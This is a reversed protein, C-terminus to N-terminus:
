ATACTETERAASEVAERLCTALILTRDDDSRAAIQPTALYGALHDCLAEDLGAAAVKLDHADVIQAGHLRVHVQQLVVGDVARERLRDRAAFPLTMQRREVAEEALRTPGRRSLDRDARHACAPCRRVQHAVLLEGIDQAVDPRESPDVLRLRRPGAAERHQHHRGRRRHRRQRRQQTATLFTGAAAGFTPALLVTILQQRRQHVLAGAASRQEGGIGFAVGQPAKGAVQEIKAAAKGLFDAVKPSRNVKKLLEDVKGQHEALAPPLDLHERMGLGVDAASDAVIPPQQADWIDKAAKAAVQLLDIDRNHPAILSLGRPLDEIRNVETAWKVVPQAIPVLPAYLLPETLGHGQEQQGATLIIPTGTFKTWNPVGALSSLRTTM